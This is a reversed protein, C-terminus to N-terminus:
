DDPGRMVDCPVPGRLPSMWSGQGSRDEVGSVADLVARIQRDTARRSSAPEETPGHFLIVFQGTSLPRTVDESEFGNGNHGCIGFVYAWGLAREEITYREAM